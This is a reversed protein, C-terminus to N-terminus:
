TKATATLWWDPAAERDEVANLRERAHAVLVDPLRVAHEDIYHALGEPWVYTGDTYEVVGNDVGCIRCPSYGMFTRFLTGAAFYYSTADREDQDWGPDVWDRPDPFASTLDGESRWYGILSLSTM